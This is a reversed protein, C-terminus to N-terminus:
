QQPKPNKQLFLVKLTNFDQEASQANTIVKQGNKTVKGSYQPPKNKKHTCKVKLYNGNGLVASLTESVLRKSKKSYKHSQKIEGNIRLEQRPSPQLRPSTSSNSSGSHELANVALSTILLSTIISKM